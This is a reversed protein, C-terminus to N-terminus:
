FNFNILRKRRAEAMLRDYLAPNKAALNTKEITGMTAFREVTLGKSGKSPPPDDQDDSGDSEDDGDEDQAARRSKGFVSTSGGKKGGGVSSAKQALEQLDEETLEEGEDLSAARKQVLHEFYDLNQPPVGFGYAAELVAKQFQTAGLTGQLAEAQEEPSLEDGEKLGLAKAVGQQIGSFQKRLDALEQKTSKADKRYRANEKRLNRVYGKVKDPTWASLDEDDDSEDEDDQGDESSAGKKKSAGESDDSEEHEEEDDLNEENEDGEQRGKNKTNEADPQNKGM